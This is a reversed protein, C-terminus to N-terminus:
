SELGELARAVAIRSYNAGDPTRSAAVLRRFRLAARYFRGKTGPPTAKLCDMALHYLNEDNAIWLSVNWCTWCHHGNYEKPSM